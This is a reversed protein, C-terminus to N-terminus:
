LIAFPTGKADNRLHPEAVGRLWKQSPLKGGLAFITERCIKRGCGFSAPVDSLLFAQFTQSASIELWALGALTKGGAGALRLFIQFGPISVGRLPTEM